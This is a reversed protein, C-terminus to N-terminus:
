RTLLLLWLWQQKELKRLKEAADFFLQVDRDTLSKDVNDGM